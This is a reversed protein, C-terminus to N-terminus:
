VDSDTRGHRLGKEYWARESPRVQGKCKRCWHKASGGQVPIFDHPGKCAALRARNARVEMWIKHITDTRGDSLEEVVAKWDDEGMVQRARHLQRGLHIVREGQGM